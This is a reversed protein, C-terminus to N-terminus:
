HTFDGEDITQSHVHISQGEPTGEASILHKSGGLEDSLTVISTSSPIEPDPNSNSITSSTLATPNVEGIQEGGIFYDTMDKVRAQFGRKVYTNMGMFVLIVVGLMLSYELISGGRIKRVKIFM